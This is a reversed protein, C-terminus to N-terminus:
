GKSPRRWREGRKGPRPPTELTASPAAPAGSGNRGEGSQRLFGRDGVANMSVEQAPPPPPPDLLGASSSTGTNRRGRSRRRAGPSRGAADLTGAPSPSAPSPPGFERTLTHLRALKGATTDEADAVSGDGYRLSTPVASSETTHRDSVERPGIELMIPGGGGGGGGRRRTKIRGPPSVSSSKALSSDAYWSQLSERGNGGGGGSSRRLIHEPRRPMAVQPRDGTIGSSLSVSGISLARGHAPRVAASSRRNNISPLGLSGAVLSTKGRQSYVSEM